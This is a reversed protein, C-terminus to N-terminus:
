IYSVKTGMSATAKVKSWSAGLARQIRQRIGRHGLAVLLGVVFVLLRTLLVPNGNLSSALEVAVARLRSLMLAAQATFTARPAAAVAKAGPRAPRQQPPRSTSGGGGGGNTNANTRRAPPEDGDAAGAESGEDRRRVREEDLRRREREENEARQRRAEDVERRLQEEQRQRHERELREREQREDRLSQLAQLFAERREDDLVASAAIFDRAYDWEDNRALVHLTYLELIKVRAHLDRPTNAGSTGPAPSRYRGKAAPTSALRGGALDLDPAASAALYTELRRQNM